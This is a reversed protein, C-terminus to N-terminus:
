SWGASFLVTDYINKKIDQCIKGLYIVQNSQAVM